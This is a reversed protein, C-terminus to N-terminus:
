SPPPCGFEIDVGPTLPDCSAVSGVYQGTRKSGSLIVAFCADNATRVSVFAMYRSGDVDRRDILYAAPRCQLLAQRICSRGGEIAAPAKIGDFSGCNTGNPLIERRYSEYEGAISEFSGFSDTTYEPDDAGNLPNGVGTGCAALAFALIFPLCHKLKM